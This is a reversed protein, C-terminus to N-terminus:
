YPVQKSGNQPHQHHSWKGNEPRLRVHHCRGLIGYGTGFGQYGRQDVESVLWAVCQQGLAYGAVRLPGHTHLIGHTSSHGEPRNDPLVLVSPRLPLVRTGQGFLRTRSWTKGKYGPLTSTHSYTKFLRIKSDHELGHFRHKGLDEMNRCIRGM